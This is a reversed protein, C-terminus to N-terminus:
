RRALWISAEGGFRDPSIAAVYFDPGAFAVQVFGEADLESFSWSVLDSSVLLGVSSPSEIFTSAQYINLEELDLYTLYTGDDRTFNVRGTGIDVEGVESLAGLAVFVGDHSVGTLGSRNVTIEFGDRVVTLSVPAEPEADLSSTPVIAGDASTAAGPSLKHQRIDFSLRYGVGADVVVLDASAGTGLAFLSRSGVGGLADSRSNAWTAIQIWSEGDVTRWEEHSQDDPNYVQAVLDGVSTARVNNVIGEGFPLSVPELGNEVSVTWAFLQWSALGVPDLGPGVLEVVAFRGIEIDFPGFVIVQDGWPAVSVNGQSILTQIDPPLADVADPWNTEVRAGFAWTTDRGTALGLIREVAGTQSLQLEDFGVGSDSLFLFGDAFEVDLDPMTRAAIAILGDSILGHEILLDRDTIQISPEWVGETTLRVLDLSTFVAEATQPGGVVILEGNIAGIAAVSGFGHPLALEQWVLMPDQVDEFSYPRSVLREDVALVEEGSSTSSTSESTVVSTDVESRSEFDAPVLAILLVVILSGAIVLPLRRLGTAERPAEVTIRDDSM